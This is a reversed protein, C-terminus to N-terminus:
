YKTINLLTAKSGMTFNVNEGSSLDLGFLKGNSRMEKLNILVVGVTPIIKERWTFLYVDPAIKFYDCIDTDALGKEPGKICHWTYFRDNLYIHEYEHKRSYTYNTRKGVLDSTREHPRVPEDLPSPNVNAHLFEVKMPSLDLGQRLRDVFSRSASERDPATAVLVTAKSTNLDLAMSISVNPLDRRVFDVFYISPAVRIAEYTEANSRGKEPGKLVKWTLSSADHFTYDIVRKGTDFCFKLEKGALENTSPLKYENMGEELEGVDIWKTAGSHSM